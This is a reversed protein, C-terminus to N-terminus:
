VLAELVHAIWQEIGEEFSIPIWTKGCACTFDKPVMLYHQRLLDALSPIPSTPRAKEPDKIAEVVKEALEPWDVM